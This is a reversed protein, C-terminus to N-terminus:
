WDIDFPNGPIKVGHLESSVRQVAKALAAATIGGLAALGRIADEGAIAALAVTVEGLADTAQDTLRGIAVTAGPTEEQARRRQRERYLYTNICLELTELKLEWALQEEKNM